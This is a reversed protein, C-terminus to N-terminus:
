YHTPAIGLSAIVDFLEADISEQRLQHYQQKLTELMESINKEARQMAMLRSANESAQSEACARFLSVFLYERILAAFTEPALGLTQPLQPTPWPTQLLQQQWTHDLPLLRQLCPQYQGTTSQPQQHLLYVTQLAHQERWTELASVLEGVLRTIAKVTNPVNFCHQIPLAQAQLRDHLREGVVWVSPHTAEPLLNPLQQQLWEALQDNFQGILGQDSGFVVLGVAPHTVATNPALPPAQRLCARLGLEVTQYYGNLAQVAREYQGINAAALAKMTRVVTQLDDAGDMRQRLNELSDAM